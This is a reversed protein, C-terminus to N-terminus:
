WLMLLLLLGAGVGDGSGTQIGDYRDDVVTVGHTKPIEM